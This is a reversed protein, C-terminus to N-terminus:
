FLLLGMLISIAPVTLNDYDKIPFSEVIAAVLSILIVNLTMGSFTIGYNETSFFIASFIWSFIFGGFFMAVTGGISKNEAWILKRSRIRRGVIDALGDGGCLIMLAIIGILSNKWFFITVVIFIIGYLLPGKLIERPDGSRSMADVSAQDKIIGVGILLFQITILLPVIAAIYRSLQVDPFLFWCLVFIPGTGIHVIKRSLQPSILGRSAIYDIIRLFLLAILLTSIFAFPISM